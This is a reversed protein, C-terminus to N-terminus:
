KTRIQTRYVTLFGAGSFTNAKGKTASLFVPAAVTRCVNCVTHRWQCNDDDNMM